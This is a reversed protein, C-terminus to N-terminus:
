FYCHMQSLTIKRKEVINVLIGLGLLPITSTTCDWVPGASSAALRFQCGTTLIIKQFHTQRHTHTHMIPPHELKSQKQFKM